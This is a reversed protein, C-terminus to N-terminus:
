DSFIKGSKCEQAAHETKELPPFFVHCYGFRKRQSFIWKCIQKQAASLDQASLNRSKKNFKADREYKIQVGYLCVCCQIMQSSSSHSAKLVTEGSLSIVIGVIYKKKLLPRRFFSFVLSVFFLDDCFTPFIIRLSRPDFLPRGVCKRSVNKARPGEEQEEEKSFPDGRRRWGCWCCGNATTARLVMVATVRM